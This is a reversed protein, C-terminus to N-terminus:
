PKTFDARRKELFAAIGERGEASSGAEALGARELELTEDMSRDFSSNILAKVRALSGTPMAVLRDTMARVADDLSADPVVNTALGLELARAAPIPDDLFAIELARAMGVLRPLTFTGGGDICLGNSTYAQKLTASAALVRLDCALALSFGGGAAPGNVRAVVPKRMRRIEIVCQHYITAVRYFFEGPKDPNAAHVARLDAGACFARGAGTVVVTRVGDDRGADRLAHWLATITAEDFANYVAPRNLTVTRVAGQQETLVMAGADSVM